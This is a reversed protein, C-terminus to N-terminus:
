LYGESIKMQIAKFRYVLKPLISMKVNNLRRICSCPMDRWKNLDKIERLLTIYNETFLNQMDKTLNIGLYKM